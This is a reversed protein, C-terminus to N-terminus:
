YQISRFVSNNVFNNEVRTGLLFAQETYSTCFLENARNDHVQCNVLAFGECSYASILQYASYDEKKGCDHIDCSRLTVNQCATLEAAGFSCEYIETGTASLNRCNNASIGMTGCGFLRTNNILVADCSIFNLVGGACMGPEVTHGAVFGDLVLNYCNEFNLVNAYRPRASIVIDPVDACISLNEVDRIVLEYGDYADRWTYYGDLHEQGYDSASSEDLFSGDLRISANPGIAALFEDMTSVTLVGAEAASPSSGPEGALKSANLTAATPQSQAQEAAAAPGMAAGCVTLTLLAALILALSARGRKKFNMIQVLREKLNRKEVAFSTAVVRRPLARDAALNLLMDGYCQKEEADMHRLLREDCALECARDLERRILLHIPNFWHIVSVLVALWKAWLDGRRYHTLEHFLIGRLMRPEYDRDPLVLAPHLLGLLMPTTVARSRFLRPSRRDYIANYAELDGALPPQLTRRLSRAFRLYGSLYWLLATVAGIAWVSLWLRASKLVALVRPGLPRAREAAITEAASPETITVPQFRQGSEERSLSLEPLGESSVRPQLPVSTVAAAPDVAPAAREETPLLGPLPLVFRLLVLLWAWYYFASPLRDSLFRRLLVLLLALVTGGASLILLRLLFQEM